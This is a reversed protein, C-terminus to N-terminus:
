FSIRIATSFNREPTSNVGKHRVTLQLADRDTTLDAEPIGVLDFLDDYNRLGSTHHLMHRLTITNGYDPMEPIYKRIDNELSIEGDQVLLLMAMATIEKSMSGIDFLSQPMIAIGLELNAMGYGREYVIIAATWAQDLHSMPAAPASAQPVPAVPKVLKQAVDNPTNLTFWFQFSAGFRL